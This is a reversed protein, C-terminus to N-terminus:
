AKSQFAPIEPNKIPIAPAYVKLLIGRKRAEHGCPPIGMNDLMEACTYVWQGSYYCDSVIYLLRGTFHTIYIHFLEQFSITGDKFCWDGTKQQANGTYWIM